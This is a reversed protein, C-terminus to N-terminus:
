WIMPEWGRDGTLMKRLRKQHPTEKPKSKTREYVSPGASVGPKFWTHHGAHNIEKTCRELTGPKLIPCKLKLDAM